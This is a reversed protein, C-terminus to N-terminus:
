QFLFIECKVLVFCLRFYKLVNQQLSKGVSFRFKKSFNGYIIKIM